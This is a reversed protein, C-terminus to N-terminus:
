FIIPMDMRLFINSWKNWVRLKAKTEKQSPSDKSDKVLHPNFLHDLQIRSTVDIAEFLVNALRFMALNYKALNQENGEGSFIAGVFQISKFRDVEAKLMELALQLSGKLYTLDRMNKLIANEHLTVNTVSKLDRWPGISSVQEGILWLHMRDHLSKTIKVYEQSEAILMAAIQFKREDDVYLNRFLFNGYHQISLSYLQGSTTPVLQAIKLALNTRNVKNPSVKYGYGLFRLLSLDSLKFAKAFQLAAGVTSHAAQQQKYPVPSVDIGDIITRKAFELGKGKPSLVSKALGVKVGLSKMTSIYMDAVPKNWIVIDDGLVAYETFRENFGCVRSRWACFHVIFHHTIALMAWSSLAGM